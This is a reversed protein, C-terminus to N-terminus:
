ALTSYKARLEDVISDEYEYYFDDAVDGREILADYPDSAGAIM